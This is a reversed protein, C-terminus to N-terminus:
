GKRRSNFVTRGGNLTYKPTENPTLLNIILLYNIKSINKYTQNLILFYNLILGLDLISEVLLKSQNNHQIWFKTVFKIRLKIKYYFM